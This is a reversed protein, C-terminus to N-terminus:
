CNRIYTPAPLPAGSRMPILPSVTRPNEADLDQEIKIRM